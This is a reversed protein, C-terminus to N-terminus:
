NMKAVLDIKNKNIGPPISDQGIRDNPGDKEVRESALWILDVHVHKEVLVLNM